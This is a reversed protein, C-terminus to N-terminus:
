TVWGHDIHQEVTSGRVSSPNPAGDGGHADRKALKAPMREASGGQAVRMLRLLAVVSQHRLSPKMPRRDPNSRVDARPAAQQTSTM